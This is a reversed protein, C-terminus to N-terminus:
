SYLYKLYITHAAVAAVVTVNYIKSFTNNYQDQSLVTSQRLTQNSLKM